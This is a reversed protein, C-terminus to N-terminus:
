LSVNSNEQDVVSAVAFARLSENNTNMVVVAEASKDSEFEATFCMVIFDWIKKM